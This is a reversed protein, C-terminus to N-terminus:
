LISECNDFMKSVKNKREVNRWDITKRPPVKRKPQFSSSKTLFFFYRAKTTATTTVKKRYYLTETSHATTLMRIWNNSTLKSNKLDLTFISETSSYYQYRTGVRDTPLSNNRYGKKPQKTTKSRFQHGWFAFISVRFYSM